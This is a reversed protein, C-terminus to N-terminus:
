ELLSSLEQVDFLARKGRQVPPNISMVIESNSYFIEDKKLPWKWQKGAAAMVNVMAGSPSIETIKGPFYKGEFEVVVYKGIQKDVDASEKSIIKTFNEDDTHFDEDWPSDDSEQYQVESEDNSSDSSSSNVRIKRQIATGSCSPQSDCNVSEVANDSNFDSSSISKGPPVNLRKKRKIQRTKTADARTKSLHEIFTESVAQAIENDATVVRSCIRNLVEQRNLPHIGTKRFDSQLNQTGREELKNMLEKLLRPFEDKPVSSFRSGHAGEKWENLIRRWKEKMPRFFAVDLPQLLHTTNPPLAIFRVNNAECEQIVQLNLHSSLNDGIIVKPGEQEKLIPLLLRLFWDEFIKYDFWGSSTQNYRANLPGNETWTDWMKKAKYNIYLPALKGEANGCVMLSTCAKSSSRIREPYKTGRRTIIKSMGPDDVLNTEDYNWVNSPPIGRLEVELHDFFNNIIDEDTAARAHSINQAIRQTLQPHRKLFM